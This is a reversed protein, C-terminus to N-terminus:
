HRYGTGSRYFGLFRAAGSLPIYAVFYCVTRSIASGLSRGLCCAKSPPSSRLNSWLLGTVTGDLRGLTARMAVLGKNRVNCPRKATSLGTQASGSDDGRVVRGALAPQLSFLRSFPMLFLHVSLHRFQLSMVRAVGGGTRRLYPELLPGLLPAPFLTCSPRCAERHRPGRRSRPSPM